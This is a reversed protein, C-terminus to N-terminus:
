EEDQHFTATTMTVASRTSTLDLSLEDPTNVFSVRIPEAANTAIEGEGRYPTVSVPHQENCLVAIRALVARVVSKRLSGEGCAVTEGGVKIRCRDGEWILQIDHERAVVLMEDVVGLVGQDPTTIARALRGLPTSRDSM